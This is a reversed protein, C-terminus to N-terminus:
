YLDIDEFISGFADAYIRLSTLPGILKKQEYLMEIEIIVDDDCIKINENILELLSKMRDIKKKDICFSPHLKIVGGDPMRKVLAELMSKWQSPQLRREACTLGITKIDLLKPKYYNKLILYNDLIYLNEKPILPFSNQTIGIFAKADDRFHKKRKKLNRYYTNTLHLYINKMLRFVIFKKYYRHPKIRRYSMQGEELYIHGKCNKSDIIIETGLEAWTSYVLFNQKKEFIKNRIRYGKLNISLLKEFYRDYWYSNPNFALSQIISTDTKRTFSVFINNKKIGFEDIMMRSVILSVPGSILFVHLFDNKIASDIIPPIKSLNTNVEKM